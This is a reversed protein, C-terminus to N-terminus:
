QSIVWMAYFKDKWHTHHLTKLINIFHAFDGSIGSYKLCGWFCGKVTFCDDENREERWSRNIVLRNEIEICKGTRVNWIFPTICHITKQSQRRQSLKWNYHKGPADMHSWTDTDLQNWKWHMYWYMKGKWQQIIYWMKRWTISMALYYDISLICWMKNTRWNISMQTMEMKIPLLFHCGVGTNKGPSDRPCLLRTPQWRHPRVSDSM